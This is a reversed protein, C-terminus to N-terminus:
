LNMARVARRMAREVATAQADLILAQHALAMPTVDQRTTLRQTGDRLGTVDGPALAIVEPRRAFPLAHWWEDGAL